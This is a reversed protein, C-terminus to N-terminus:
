PATATEDDGATILAAMSPANSIRTEFDHMFFFSYCIRLSTRQDWTQLQSSQACNAESSHYSPPQTGPKNWNTHGFRIQELKNDLDFKNAV